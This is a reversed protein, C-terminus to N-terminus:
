GLPIGWIYTTTETDVCHHQSSLYKGMVASHVRNGTLDIVFSYKRKWKTLFVASVDIKVVCKGAFHKRWVYGPKISSVSSVRIRANHGTRQGTILECAVHVFMRYLLWIWALMTILAKAVTWRALLMFSSVSSLLRVFAIMTFLVETARWIAPSMLLSVCSLLRICALMTVLTKAAWWIAFPMFSSVRSLLRKWALM